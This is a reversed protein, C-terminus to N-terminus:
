HIAQEPPWTKELSRVQNVRCITRYDCRSTCEPDLSFVPFQAARIGQVIQSVKQEVQQRRVTWDDTPRVQGDAADSLRLWKKYGKDRIFWYGGELPSAGLSALLVQQAAIAYLELQLATGDITADRPPSKAAGSKYDVINFVLQGGITGLDIRDIRGSLKVVAGPVALTLPEESSLSEKPSQPDAEAGALPMGFSVEFHAPRLPGDLNQWNEDYSAHQGHYQQLWQSLMRRDIEGLAGHLSRDDDALQFLLALVESFHSAFEDPPLEAPSTETSQAQNIRRHLHALTDHLRWGRKAYNTELAIEGPPKLHLVQSLFFQYPCSAYQELQSASWLHDDGFREGLRQKAAASELVGEFPGFGDRRRRQDMADLAALLNAAVNATAANRCLGALLSCGGDLADYVARLRFDSTGWPQRSLPVPSLEVEHRVLTRSDAFVRQLEAVFPSPLLPQAKEDLAPYSLQLWRGARTVVEYFLLMDEQTRHDRLALPLGHERLVRCESDSYLRDERDPAPMAKESLGAFFLYPVDITRASHASIVRVCGTQEGVRPLSESRLLDLIAELVEDRDLEPPEDGLWNALEDGAALAKQLRDWALRDLSPQGGAAGVDIERTFGTSEALQELSLAWQGPTAAVPLDALSEALSELVPLVDEALKQLRRRESRDDDHEPSRPEKDDDSPTALRRVEALLAECGSPIQLERVLREAAGRLRGGRWAPWEPQFYNSGLASLLLRFPWDEIDLRLLGVLSAMAPSRGLPQDAEVSLPIGFEVLIESVLPGVDALSRFVVAIEHPSVAQGPADAPGVTLLQKIQRAIERLEATVGSAALVAVGTSEASPKVERPNKFLERELHAMAAPLSTSREAYEVTVQKHRQEFEALTHRSKEFLEGRPTDRELVLTVNLTEVREALIELIEHQTRTFDTFGDVVVHRLHEFPRRQGDRLLARASWFCGDADYLGHDTLAKQYEEYLHLLDRDKRHMGRERCAARFDDPWVELRKLDGIWQDVLDVLGPTDAIPAFHKLKKDAAAEGILRRVLHRKMAANMPRVAATSAHLVAQAFQDFTMMGPAFCAAFGHQLLRGRLEFAARKTPALWLLSGIPECALRTRFDALLRTTKGSRAPGATIIVQAAM